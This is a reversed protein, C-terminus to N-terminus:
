HYLRGSEKLSWHDEKSFFALCIIISSSLRRPIKERPARCPPPYTFCPWQHRNPLAAKAVSDDPGTPAFSLACPCPLALVLFSCLFTPKPDAIICFRPLTCNPSPKKRPAAISIQSPLCTSQGRTCSSTQHRKSHKWPHSCITRVRFPRRQITIHTQVESNQLTPTV